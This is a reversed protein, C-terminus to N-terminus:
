SLFNKYKNLPSFVIRLNNKHFYLATTKHSASQSRGGSHCEQLPQQDASQGTGPASLATVQAPVQKAEEKHVHSSPLSHGQGLMKLYKYLSPILCLQAGAM